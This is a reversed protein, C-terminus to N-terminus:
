EKTVPLIGGLRHHGGYPKLVPTTPHALDRLQPCLAVVKWAVKTLALRNDRNRLRADSEAFSPPKCADAALVLDTKRLSQYCAAHAYAFAEVNIENGVVTAETGGRYVVACGVLNALASAFSFWAQGHIHFPRGRVHQEGTDYLDIGEYRERLRDIQYLWDAM